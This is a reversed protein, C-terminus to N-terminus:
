MVKYKILDRMMKNKLVDLDKELCEYQSLFSDFLVECRGIDMDIYLVRFYDSFVRSRISMLNNLNEIHDKGNPLFRAMHHMFTPIGATETERTLFYKKLFLSVDEVFSDIFRYSMGQKLFDEETILLKDMEIRRRIETGPDAVIHHVYNDLDHPQHAELFDFNVKLREPTSYPNIMIFGFHDSYIGAEKLKRLTLWNNEVTTKKNYLQLDYNNGSEIGVLVVEFGAQKMLNLVKSSVHSVFNSRLYCRMSVMLKSEIVLHCFDEIKKVGAVGGPDEFSGGTFWFCKIHSTDYIKKIENFLSEPSRGSWIPYHQGRTCFSCRMCCGTSDNIFAYYNEYSSKGLYRTPLPMENININCVSKNEKSNRTMIHKNGLIFPKLNKGSDSCEIFSKITYEGDGMIIYEISMFRKDNLIEESYISAYKGGLMISANPNIEKIRDAIKAFKLLSEPYVSSESYISMHYIQSNLKIKKFNNEIDDIVNLLIYDTEYGEQILYAQLRQSDINELGDNTMALLTIKM